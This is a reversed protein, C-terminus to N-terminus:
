LKLDPKHQTWMELVNSTTVKLKKGVPLDKGKQNLYRGVVAATVKLKGTDGGFKEFKAIQLHRRIHQTKSDDYYLTM